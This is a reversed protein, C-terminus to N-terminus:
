LSFARTFQVGVEWWNDPASVVVSNTQGARNDSIFLSRSCAGTYRGFVLLQSKDSVNAGIGVKATVFPRYISSTGTGRDHNAPAIFSDFDADFDIYNAGGGVMVLGFMRQTFYGLFNLGIGVNWMSHHVDVQYFNANAPNTGRSSIKSGPIWNAFATFNVIMNEHNSWLPLWLGMEPVFTREQGRRNLNTSLAINSNNDFGNLITPDDGFYASASVYAHIADQTPDQVPAIDPGGAMALGTTVFASAALAFRALSKLKM